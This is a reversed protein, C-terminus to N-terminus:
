LADIGALILRANETYIEGLSEYPLPNKGHGMEVTFAPRGCEKIFWDKCGGYAATGTPHALEYGSARAMANAIEVSHPPVIGDFDYYIEGGQSHFATMMDFGVTRVLSTVARVEPESEPYEGGFRTAGARTGRQWDANYNHNLDVGRVNAQWIRSFCHIGVKAILRRHYPNTIDIGNVAIDVGDPNVMPVIYLTVKNLLARINIGLMPAGTHLAAATECVFRMLFTATLYELGHHAGNLLVRRSGAGIKICYIGRGEISAGINTRSIERYDSELTRLDRSLSEYDYGHM